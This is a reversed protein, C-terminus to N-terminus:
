RSVKAVLLEFITVDKIGFLRISDTERGAHQKASEVSQLRLLDTSAYSESQRGSSSIISMM